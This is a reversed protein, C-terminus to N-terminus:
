YPLNIIFLEFLIKELLQYLVYLWGLVLCPILIWAFCGTGMLAEVILRILYFVPLICTGALILFIAQMMEWLNDMSGLLLLDLFSVFFFFPFVFLVLGLMRSFVAYGIDVAEKLKM